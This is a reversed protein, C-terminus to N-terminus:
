KSLVIDAVSFFSGGAPACPRRGVFGVVDGVAEFRLGTREGVGDEGEDCDFPPRGLVLDSRPLAKDALFGARLDTTPADPKLLLLLAVSASSSARASFM